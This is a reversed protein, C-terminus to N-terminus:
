APAVIKDWQGCGADLTYKVAARDLGSPLRLMEDACIVASAYVLCRNIICSLVQIPGLPPLLQELSESPECSPWMGNVNDRQWRGDANQIWNQVHSLAKCVIHRILVPGLSLRQCPPGAQMSEELVTIRLGLAMWVLSCHNFDDQLKSSGLQMVLMVAGAFTQQLAKSRVATSRPASASVSSAAVPVSVHCLGNQDTASTHRQLLERTSGGCLLRLDLSLVQGLVERLLTAATATNRILHGSVGLRVLLSTCSNRLDPALQGIRYQALCPSNTVLRVLEHNEQFRDQVDTSMSPARHVYESTYLTFGKASTTCCGVVQANSHALKAVLEQVALICSLLVM